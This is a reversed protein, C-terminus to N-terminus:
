LSYETFCVAKKYNFNGKLGEKKLTNKNNKSFYTKAQKLSIQKQIDLCVKKM